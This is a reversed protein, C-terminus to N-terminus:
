RLKKLVTASKLANLKVTMQGHGASDTLRNQLVRRARLLFQDDLAIVDWGKADAKRLSAAPFRVRKPTRTVSGFRCQAAFHCKLHNM